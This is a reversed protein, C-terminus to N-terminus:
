GGMGIVLALGNGICLFPIFPLETKGKAKKFVCCGIGWLAACLFGWTCIQMVRFFDYFMGLSLIVFCDGYGISEGTVFAIAFLCIGPIFGYIISEWEFGNIGAHMLIGAFVYVVLSSMSVMRTKLDVMSNGALYCFTLIEKGISLLICVGAEAEGTGM